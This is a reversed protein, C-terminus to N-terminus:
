FRGVASLGRFQPGAVPTLHVRSEQERVVKYRRNLMGWLTGIAGGALTDLAIRRQFLRAVQVDTSGLMHLVEITERHMDLGARAALVVVAATAAAMMTVIGAALWILGTMFGSVPSMWRAHRDVEAQPTTRHALATVAATGTEVDGQIDVDILAPVPLSPDAAALRGAAVGGSTGAPCADSLVWLGLLTSRQM